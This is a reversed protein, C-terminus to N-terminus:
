FVLKFLALWFGVGALFCVTWALPAFLPHARYSDSRDESEDRLGRYDLNISESGWPGDRYIM